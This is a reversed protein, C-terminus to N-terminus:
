PNEPRPGDSVRARAKTPASRHTQGTRTPSLCAEGQKWSLDGLDGGFEQLPAGLCVQKCTRGKM